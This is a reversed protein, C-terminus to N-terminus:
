RHCREVGSGSVRTQRELLLCLAPSQHRDVFETSDFDVATKDVWSPIPKIAFTQNSVELAAGPLDATRREIAPRGSSSGFILVIGLVANVTSRLNLRSPARPGAHFPPKLNMM